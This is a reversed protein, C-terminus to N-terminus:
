SEPISGTQFMYDQKELTYYVVNGEKPYGMGYSVAKRQIVLMNGADEIRKEADANQLRLEDVEKELLAVRCTRQQVQFDLQLFVTCIVLMLLATSIFRLLRSREERLVRKAQLAYYRRLNEEEQRKYHADIEWETMHAAKMELM